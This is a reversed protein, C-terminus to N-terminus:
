APYTLAEGSIQQVVDAVFRFLELGKGKDDLWSGSATDYSFHIGQGRGAVWIQRVARQTNVICKERSAATLTVMDGTSEAELDDPDLADAAAMIRKFAAAVLQNYTSENMM